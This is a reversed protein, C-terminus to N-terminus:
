SSRSASGTEEETAERWAERARARAAKLAALQGCIKERDELGIDFGSDRFQREASEVDREAIRWAEYKPTRM